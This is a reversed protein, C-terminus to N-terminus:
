RKFRDWFSLKGKIPPNEILLIKDQQQKLLVQANENLRALSEIQKDKIGLQGYLNEKDEKLENVQKELTETLRKYVILETATEQNGEEPKLEQQSPKVYQNVSLSQKLIEIGETTICKGEKLQKVHNRLENVKAIKKYITVKSVKLRKSVESISYYM